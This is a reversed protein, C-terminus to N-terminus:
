NSFTYSIPKGNEDFLFDSLKQKGGIFEIGLKSIFEICADIEKEDVIVDGMAKKAYIKDYIVEDYTDKMILNTVTVSKKSTIRHCRNFCQEFTAYDWLLTLFVCQTTNPLSHGVGLTQTQAFIVSFGDCNEHEEVIQMIKDGMGGIIIKPNYEKFYEKAIEIAQTFQCFVLVKEGNQRAEELIDKLREFKTSEAVKTSLLGTHTACQRFRTIISMLTKPLDVKDVAFEYPVLDILTSKTGVEDELVSKFRGAIENFIRQEGVSMELIEDKFVVPPLDKAVEDKTRRIFSKHLIKQLEEVNQFGTVGGFRDKILYRNSFSWYDSSTLGVVRMPVYLNLPDNVVLTGSMGIKIVPMPIRETMKAVKREWVGLKMLMKSQQAKPNRCMHIEDIIVMGLDGNEIHTNLADIITNGLAVEEKSARIKEVNIIWFFEDPCNKIQEKTEEITMDYLKDKTKETKGHRTGLIVASEHTFKRIENAWNYKLSNVCCIVLCHKMKKRDKYITALQITQFSKGLGMTDGLIWNRKTLGFKIGEEQYPYPKFKGWDFTSLYNNMKDMDVPAPPKSKYYIENNYLEQIEKLNDETYPVEWEKTKPIYCRNWFGAIKARDINFTPSGNPFTIFISNAEVTQREASGFDIIVM